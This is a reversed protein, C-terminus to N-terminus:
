LSSVKEYVSDFFANYATENETSKELVNKVNKDTERPKITIELADTAPAVSSEKTSFESGPRAVSCHYYVFRRPKNDGQVEFMLAFPSTKSDANELLAGNSDEEQGLIDKKFAKIIDAITLTGTYGQNNEQDFWLIDDAYFEAKDGSPTLSLSVAGPLAVPTGYVYEGNEGFTIKSYHVNRLGFKVKNM